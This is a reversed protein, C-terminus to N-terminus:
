HNYLGVELENQNFIEMHQLISKNVKNVDYKEIAIELSRKGMKQIEDSQRIFYEMAKCLENVNRVSVLFGNYGNIVTEKCGPVNTTIIPRGMAMAELVTRPIGEAYSPLVYVSCDSIATRVDSLAGLFDIIGKKLWISFENETISSPNTDIMGVLKFVVDPYRSKIIEAASMYERIGKDILLRAIMLFSITSPFPTPRYYTLDVGSGNIIAIQQQKKIIKLEIFSNLNDKNLFFIKKNFKLAFKFLKKAFVSIIRSKLSLNTFIYGAGEVMAYISPVNNFKAAISGYIIPKITYSYVINPKEQRLLMFLKKLLLLDRIPNLGNRDLPIPIFKIGIHGLEVAVAEDNPAMAIVSYGRYVFEKMLHLRFNILSQALGGIFVIKKVEM